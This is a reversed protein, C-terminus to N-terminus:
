ELIDSVREPLKKYMNEGAGIEPLGLESAPVSTGKVRFYADLMEAAASKDFVWIRSGDFSAPYGAALRINMKSTKIGMSFGVADIMENISMDTDFRNAILNMLLDFSEYAGKKGLADLIKSLVARYAKVAKERGDTYCSGDLATLAASKGDYAGLAEAIGGFTEADFCVSGSLKIKFADAVAASYVPTDFAESVTGSFGGATIYGDPPIELVDLSKKDRDVTFIHARVPSKGDTVTILWSKKNSVTDLWYGQSIYRVYDPATYQEAVRLRAARSAASLVFVTAMAAAACWLSM